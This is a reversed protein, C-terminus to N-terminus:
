RERALSDSQSPRLFAIFTSFQGFASQTKREIGAASLRTETQALTLRRVLNELQSLEESSLRRGQIMLLTSIFNTLRAEDNSYTVIAATSQRASDQANKKEETILTQSKRLEVLAPRMNETKGLIAYGDALVATFEQAPDPEAQLGQLIQGSTEKFGEELSRRLRAEDNVRAILVSGEAGESRKMTLLPPSLTALAEKPNSIGYVSLSSKLLSGFLVAPLADLKFSVAADLSNWAAAPERSRYITLSEFSGPVLKWFNEDRQSTEFAPQLRAVVGPELSFLFRDEIGGGSPVATWAIGRLIKGASVALLQEMQEDGPAMGMLLPAAWAFLKASNVSSIYGFGLSQPTSVSARAKLFETDTRISPRTGERVELCTRLAYDSNALVIATGHIAGVLKRDTGHVSCEFRDQAPEVCSSAGYAYDALRKVGEVMVSRTRWRSTHTEAILAVEPRVKLTDEQESTNLGVVILAVQARAFLVSEVPGVGARAAALLLSADTHTPGSNTIPAAVRWAETNRIERVVDNLSNFEVYVLSDAPAYDALDVKAPLSFWLWAAVVLILLLALAFVIRLRKM